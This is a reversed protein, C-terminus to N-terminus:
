GFPRRLPELIRCMRGGNNRRLLVLDSIVEEVGREDRLAMTYRGTPGETSAHLQQEAAGSPRPSERAKPPPQTQGSFGLLSSLGFGSGLAAASTSSYSSAIKEAHKTKEFGTIRGRGLGHVEVQKNILTMPEM